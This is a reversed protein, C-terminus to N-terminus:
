ALVWQSLLLLILGPLGLVGVTLANFFNLGLTVGTIPATARLLGLAGFGLATNAALRLLLALPKRFLATLAIIFFGTLFLVILLDRLEM